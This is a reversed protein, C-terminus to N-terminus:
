IKEVPKDRQLLGFHMIHNDVDDSPSIVPATFM